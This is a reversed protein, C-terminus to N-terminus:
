FHPIFNTWQVTEYLGEPTSRLSFFVEVFNYIRAVLYLFMAVLGVLNVSGLSGRRWRLIEWFYFAPPLAMIAISSFRWLTKEEPTPLEYNWALLHLGGFVGAVSLWTSGIFFYDGTTYDRDANPLQNVIGGLSAKEKDSRLDMDRVDDLVRDFARDRIETAWGVDQPKDLWLLFSFLTCTVYAVATIELPSTPLHLHIRAFTQILLWLAQILAISKGLRDTRSYEKVLSTRKHIHRFLGRRIIPELHKMKLYTIEDDDSSRPDFYDSGEQPRYVFGRMNYYFAQSMSWTRPHGRYDQSLEDVARQVARAELFQTMAICMCIEPAIANITTWCLSTWLRRWYSNTAKAINLHLSTATCFFITIICSQLIDWTGRTPVKPESVWGLNSAHLTFRRVLQPWPNGFQDDDTFSLPLPSARVFCLQGISCLLVLLITTYRNPQPMNLM